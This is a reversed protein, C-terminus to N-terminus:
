VGVGVQMNEESTKMDKEQYMNPSYTQADRCKM